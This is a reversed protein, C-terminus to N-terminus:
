TAAQAARQLVAAAASAPNAAGGRLSLALVVAAALALAGALAGVPLLRERGLRGLIPRRRKPAAREIEALLAARARERAEPQVLGADLQPHLERVLVLDLDTTM